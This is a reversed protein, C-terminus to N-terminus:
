VEDSSTKLQNSFDRNVQQKWFHFTLNGGEAVGALLDVLLRQAKWMSAPVIGKSILQAATIKMDRKKM